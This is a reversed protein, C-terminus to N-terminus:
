KGWSCSSKTQHFQDGTFDARSKQPRVLVPPELILSLSQNSESDGNCFITTMGQAQIRCDNNEKVVVTVTLLCELQETTITECTIRHFAKIWLLLPEGATIKLWGCGSQIGILVAINPHAIENKIRVSVKVVIGNTPISSTDSFCHDGNPLLFPEANSLYTGRNNTMLPKLFELNLPVQIPVIQKLKTNGASKNQQKSTDEVQMRELQVEM